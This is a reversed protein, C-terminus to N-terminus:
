QNGESKELEEFKASFGSYIKPEQLCPSELV